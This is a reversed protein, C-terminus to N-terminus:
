WIKVRDEPARWHGDGEKVDFAQYFEPMNSVVGRVRYPAPSHPDSLIQERVFGERAKIRWDSAYGMFFRQEGTFGDIVPAEKGDLSLQYARFAMTLGAHDGINEGLTLEGNIHLGEVPEFESYQDIMVQARREYEEADQATWWDRLEGKEDFKRGQNDFAHLMEHGIAAGIAGYNYADDAELDFFPPQLIGAYFFMENTTPRISANVEQTGRSFEGDLPPKGLKRIDDDYTERTGRIMNGMLDDASIDVRSYERWQDAYGVYVKLAALKKHAEAKTEPQMWDLADISEGFAKRLNEVMTNMRGGAEPPFYRELYIQGVADQLLRNAGNLAYEWRQRPEQQDRLVRGRFQFRADFFPQSLQYGFGDILHFKLYTKWDELPVEPVMAAFGTVFSPMGVVIEEEGDLAAAALFVDWNLGPAMGPLDAVATLNYRASRDRARVQDWHIEAIRTELALIGAAAEASGEHGALGLVRDAYAVYGARIEEFKEEEKFYYDRDPLGLGAQFLYFLSRTTDGQDRDVYYDFPVGLQLSLNRGFIRTLDDISEASDIIGLEDRLAEIGQEDARSEDMYSTYFDGIKQQDSGPEADAAAAEELIAKLRAENRERVETWSGYRVEDPPIETKDLWAGNAYQFFDDQPRTAQDIHDLAIGSKTKAVVSENDAALPEVQATDAPAPTDTKGCAALLAIGVILLLRTM